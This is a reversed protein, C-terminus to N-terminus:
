MLFTYTQLNERRMGEFQAQFAVAQPSFCWSSPKKQVTIVQSDSEVKGMVAGLWEECACDVGSEWWSGELSAECGVWRIPLSNKPDPQQRQAPM